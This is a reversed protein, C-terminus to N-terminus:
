EHRAKAEGHHHHTAAPATLKALGELLSAESDLLFQGSVVVQEGPELGALVETRGGVSIGTRIERGAFRGDGLAVIVHSGRSDRLVAQAPVALRDRRELTLEVDAYAGPRLRGGANDVVIRVRGTRTRPDVTPYVYDVQGTGVYGPVSPFNLAAALGAAMAQLDQEAVAAIVWLPDYGQLRLIEDGPKLYAGDRVSLSSVVGSSEAYVPVQEILERRETLEAIGQAQMGLSRLRQAASTSRGENGGRLAALYDQQAAILSPSYVRYLLAGAAVQDGEATIAVYGLWGEVRSAVVTELRTSAEITGFARVRRGFSRKAVPATRVGMSQIMEPSVTVAGSAAGPAVSRELPTLDMGCIPCTGPEASIYQPHMPCSYGIQADPSQLPDAVSAAPSQMPSTQEPTSATGEIGHGEMAPPMPHMDEHQHGSHHEMAADGPQGATGTSLALLAAAVISISLKRTM